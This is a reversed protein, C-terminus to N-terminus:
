GTLVFRHAKDAYHCNIALDGQVPFVKYDDNNIFTQFM